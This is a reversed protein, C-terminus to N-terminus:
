NVPIFPVDQCIIPLGAQNLSYALKDLEAAGKSSKKHNDIMKLIIKNFKIQDSELTIRRLWIPLLSEIRTVSDEIHKTMCQTQVESKFRSNFETVSAMSVFAECTADVGYKKFESLKKDFNGMPLHTYLLAINEMSILKDSIAESQGNTLNSYLPKRQTNLAIAEKLHDRFCTESAQANSILFFILLIKKKM